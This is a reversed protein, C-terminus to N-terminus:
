NQWDYAIFGRIFSAVHPNLSENKRQVMKGTKRSEQFKSACKSHEPNIGVFFRQIFELSTAVEAPYEINFVYYSGFFVALASAFDSHDSLQLVVKGEISLMWKKAGLISEGLMVLRPTSPLAIQAKVDAQTSTEPLHQELVVPNCSHYLAAFGCCVAVTTLGNGLARRWHVTLVVHPCISAYVLVGTGHVMTLNSVVYAANAGKLNNRECACADCNEIMLKLEKSLDPWWVSQKRIGLHGEYLKNKYTEKFHHQFM